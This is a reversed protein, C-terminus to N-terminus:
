FSIGVCWLDGVYYESRESVVMEMDVMHHGYCAYYVIALCM